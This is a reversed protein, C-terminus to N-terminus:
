QMGPRRSVEAWRAHRKTLPITKHRAPLDSCASQRASNPSHESDTSSSPKFACCVGRIWICGTLRSTTLLNATASEEPIMRGRLMVPGSMYTMQEDGAEHDPEHVPQRHVLEHASKHGTSSQTNRGHGEDRGTEAGSEIGADPEHGTQQHGIQQFSSAQSPEKRMDTM